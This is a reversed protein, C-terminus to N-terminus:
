NIIIEVRRNQRKGEETKNTAIPLSEGKSEVFIRDANVNKSVLLEKIANAREMGYQYNEEQNGTNDTHGSIVLASGNEIVASALKAMRENLELSLNPDASATPFNIVIIDATETITFDPNEIETATFDFDVARFPHDIDAPEGSVLESSIKVRGVYDENALLNKVANARALGLNDFDSTNKESAYYKGVITLDKDTDIINTALTDKVMAFEDNTIPLDTEWNFVLNGLNSKPAEKAEEIENEIPAVIEKKQTNDDCLEMINCIYYPITLISWAAFTLVGYLVVKM